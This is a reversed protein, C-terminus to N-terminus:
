RGLIGRWWPRQTGVVKRVEKDLEALHTRFKDAIERLEAIDPEYVAGSTAGRASLRAFTTPLIHGDAVSAEVVRSAEQTLWPENSKYYEELEGIHVEILRKEEEGLGYHEYHAIIGEIVASIEQIKGRITTTVEVRRAHLDQNRNLRNGLRYFFGSTIVWALVGVGIGIWWAAVLEPKVEDEL